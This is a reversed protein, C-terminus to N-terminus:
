ALFVYFRLCFSEFLVDEEPGCLLELVAFLSHQLPTREDLVCHVCALRVFEQL